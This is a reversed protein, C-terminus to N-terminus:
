GFLGVDSDSDSDPADAGGRFFTMGHKLVRSIGSPGPQDEEEEPPTHSPERQTKAPKEPADQTRQRSPPTITKKIAQAASKLQARTSTGAKTKSQKETTTPHAAADKTGSHLFDGLRKLEMQAAKARKKTVHAAREAASRRRPQPQHQQPEPEHQPQEDPGTQHTDYARYGMQIMRTLDAMTMQQGMAAACILATANSIEELEECARTRLNYRTRPAQQADPATTPTTGEPATAAPQEDDTDEQHDDEEPQHVMDDDDDEDDEDTDPHNDPLRARLHHSNIKIVKRKSREERRVRYVTLSERSVITGQEWKATFKPNPKNSDQVKVWVLDDTQFTPLHAPLREDHSQRQQERANQNNHYVINKATAQAQRITALIDAFSSDPRINIDNPHVVGDWLPVRPDYGFTAQFPTVKTSKHVATNYSFALPGLYHEWDLTSTEAELIATAMYHALTKNFVEASANCRPFYPTTTTHSIGLSDWLLKQLESCFENGMDSHFQRPVGYVYLHHKLLAKTVTTASKGRIPVLNARKSFADTIVLVYNNGDVSDKIPGFLDIHVRENPGNLLPLPQLPTTPAATKRATRQCPDCRKIFANVDAEMNPWYFSDRIRETTKFVGGHGGYPSAHAMRLIDARLGFPVAVRHTCTSGPTTPFGTRITPKAYLIDDHTIHFETRRGPVTFRFCTNPDYNAPRANKGKTIIDLTEKDKTQERRLVEPSVDVQLVARETGAAEAYPKHLGDYRSLFDAVVNDKGEIYTIDPHLEQMKLQLRDLTKTHIKSLRCLPKHDSYLRFRRGVLYHHFHDMGYVAAAMEALFVPYNREHKLLRRSAFGVPRQNGDADEQMLVAGIGGANNADGLAADVYLHLRGKPRPFALVPRSTIRKKIDEYAARARPPLSGEKWGADKQTLAFLPAAITSFNKVFQRFYNALGCFSKLQKLTTPAETDYLAATKDTGPKIGDSTVTHGLYEVSGSGFVCKKINLRLGASRIRSVADTLHAIHETHNASHVMVDDVYTIINKAGTMILDMLRSFSAPAGMLGMPMRTWQYQGQGPITFATFPRAAEALKLQWFGNTLDLCSFVKSGAHGIEEICQDITKISYKDELSNVNLRRYDLVVRLAGGKKPVAFIPSNYGSNTTEIVGSKLWGMVNGKIVELQESPLRFQKTYVPKGQALLIDHSIIDTYGMDEQSVSFATEHQMLADVYTSRHMYPVTQAVQAQLMARIQLKEDHTHPTPNNSAKAQAVAQGDTIPVWHGLPEATGINMGRALEIPVTDANPVHVSFAGGDNSKVAVSAGNDIHAMFQREKDMRAGTEPNYLHCKVLRAQQPQLTTTQAVKVAWKVEDGVAAVQLPESQASNVTALQEMQFKDQSIINMGIIDSGGQSQTVMFPAAFTRGHVQIYVEYFGKCPIVQGNAARITMNVGDLKRRVAKNKVAELFTPERMISVNAGTDCLFPYSKTSQEHLGFHVAAHPRQATIPIDPLTNNTTDIKVLKQKLAAANYTVTFVESELGDPSTALCM